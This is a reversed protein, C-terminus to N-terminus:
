AVRVRFLIYWKPFSKHQYFKVSNNKWIDEGQQSNWVKAPEGAPRGLQWDGGM